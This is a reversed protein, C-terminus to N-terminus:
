HRLIKRSRNVVPQLERLSYVEPLVPRHRRRLRCRRHCLRRAREKWARRHHVRHDIIRPDHVVRVYRAVLRVHVPPAVRRRQDRKLHVRDRHLCIAIEVAREHRDGARPPDMADHSAAVTIATDSNGHAVM